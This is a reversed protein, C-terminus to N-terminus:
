FNLVWVILYLHIMLQVLLIIRVGSAAAGSRVGWFPLAIESHAYLHTGYEVDSLEQPLPRERWPAASLVDQVKLARSQTQPPFFLVLGMSPISDAPVVNAPTGETELITAHTFAGSFPALFSTIAGRTM